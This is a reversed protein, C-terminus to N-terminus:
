KLDGYLLQMMSLAAIAATETRLIRPGLRISHAGSQLAVEIESPSFGGEPGILLTLDKAAINISPWSEQAYPSLIWRYDSSCHPLYQNFPVAPHITPIWNRGSQECASIAIAQWQQQKKVLRQAELRVVSRETILPTISTVGLEVAKQI